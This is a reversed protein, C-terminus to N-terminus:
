PQDEHEIGRIAQLFNKMAPCRKKVDPEVCSHIAEALQPHIQPRFRRIDVPPQHHTMAAMGTTGRPWPLENTCIEFATVGFAFVDLRIDTPYRRVLEPAMYDPTGTRNGPALFPGSAPVTLGFDTLKCIQGDATLLLNRPCVDRHIFGATHVVALAEAVQRIMRVRNGNLREDRAILLSNVGGGGLYEMVIYKNGETTLGYELTEVIYPHEFQSAIEGESPKKCGRFRGEFAATKQLDLIKLGVVENTARNRAMYFKSMSGSIAERLLDYRMKVDLRKGSSPTLVSKLRNLLGM